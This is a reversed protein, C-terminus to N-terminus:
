KSARKLMIAAVAFAVTAVVAYITFVQDTTVQIM